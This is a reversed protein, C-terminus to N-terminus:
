PAKEIVLDFCGLGLLRPDASQGILKPSTAKPIRLEIKLTGDNSVVNAPITATYEGRDSVQWDAVKQGNAYVETPQAVLGPPNTLGLLTMQLQFSEGAPLATFSLIASNGETWTKDTETQSWGSGRFRESDGADGFSVKTGLQYHTDPVAQVSSPTNQAGSASLSPSANVSTLKEDSPGTKSCGAFWLSTPIM